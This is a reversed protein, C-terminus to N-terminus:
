ANISLKNARFWDTAMELDQNVVQFLTQIDNSAYVITTDDAFLIAHCLKLVAPLGNM